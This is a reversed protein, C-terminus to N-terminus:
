HNFLFEKTNMLAWLLDEYGQRRANQSDLPKGDAGTRPKALHTEAIRVEEATPERSYAALYLERIRKPEPLETRALQDARGNAATLKTKVDDANMLHLSQALSAASVRECECVSTNDPRGFVKLFPSARTYSNDPLSIARTGPPVDAFQTKSATLMDISDLLVEATLRKPYFRSFAQVDIANHENPTSSLQYTHSQAIVRVLSKLDFQSDILHKALADLLDPNTPPNTDRLDDEPEILGRKFFHKWYRNVLAKAFFPNDPKGMWDALALRPDDDPPIDLAPEGLGAPKLMVGTKRHESLALGRKHFILDEGAIATPKRGVQSFFAAMHYYEAQTWREFPHHHCQACQMRVGLFLQAVDEVQTTSEKVRKYWAVPPNSVITGTSALIQRVIQDYPTNALLSDRMWAHFAFNATIDAASSRQNKLLATWKNAFYDAYDPSNLLAEVARDRKDPAPDALFTKTEELTPLRGGIDLSVRRLFTSDDCIPSPPIGIRKLNAFVHQDIFNKEPPLADVPAGLPVSVSCVSVKGGFRVMVAVNGPIDLTRVLGQDDATAMATDNAEFLSLPTVDRSGGDDYHATVKLQQRSHVKLSVRSPEVSIGTLAPADDSEYVMGEAIWRVLTQYHGSGPDIKKGGAHPVTGSAKTVLLSEEPAPPFVRRGKGQKVIAEYDEEPEFGLVSLRFGRQGTVAKAHCAGANCGAKTLIPQIDRVFSLPQSPDAGHSGAALMASVWAILIKNMRM